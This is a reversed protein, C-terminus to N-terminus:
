QRARQVRRAAYGALGVAILLTSGDFLPEVFFAGGLQELGAIGVALILVAILTGWANVRGPRVTTAGLLAGVFAPLLYDPGINSQAIQLQSALVVGALSTILGSTVFAGIVYRGSRIGALDAARRNSGVAYLYRGIPLFELCIWVIGVLLAVYIGPLPIGLPGQQSLNLFAPPLVAILQQGGTYWNAIGYLVTGLGLTAIFSDIKAIQVLLGNTLGAAGGVLIVAGIALPWAVHTQGQLGVALVACIDILYGISLDFQGSAIVIVEGIALMAVISTQQLVARMTLPTPFTKPLIISYAIVLLVTLILLGHVEFIRSVNLRPASTSPHVVGAGLHGEPGQPPRSRPQEDLQRPLSM